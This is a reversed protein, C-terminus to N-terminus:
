SSELMRITEIHKPKINQNVMRPITMWLDCSFIYKIFFICLMFVGAERWLKVYRHGDFHLRETM